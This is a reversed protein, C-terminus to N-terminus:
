FRVDPRGPEVGFTITVIQGDREHVEAFLYPDGHNLIDNLKRRAILTLGSGARVTGEFAFRRILAGDFHRRRLRKWTWAETAERAARPHAVLEQNPHALPM